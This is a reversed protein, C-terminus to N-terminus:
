DVPVLSCTCNPHAPPTPVDDYDIKMQNGEIGTLVDGVKLFSGGITKARGSLALCFECAGPNVFWAVKTYGNHKYALEAASNAAKLSETRAIREARYGKADSYVVEVRKKLKNLSEGTKQGENLTRELEKITDQNFVGSIQKIHNEVAGRTEPPITLLEGTLFHATDASQAEMLEIIIPALVAAMEESDDRVNFLWEEYAKSSVNIKSIISDEQTNLFSSLSTKFKKTYIEATTVLKSRFFEQDDNLKKTEESKQIPLKKVIKINKKTTQPAQNSKVGLQITPSKAQLEDGGTLPLLGERERVENVTMWVNVGKEYIKLDHEKDKPVPSLHEISAPQNIELSLHEYIRDLRRMMPELKEKSYIYYLAELNARGFGNDDTMGLLPKPVELMMLVDDVAMTKTIKQDIDKLTSGVAQFKAEGGRIFGTKGANEPGEYNERWVQTFQNFAARDMDPLSVIGSPSGSNRIYNLTFNSVNIETEVYVAAKELVSMGRWENFPNPRKDHYVEEPTFPVQQGNNKHLVYGVFEGSNFKLEMRSPDLLYVEKVKKTKEGRAKYWFTEGYIEFLMGYLHIFDSASGITPNPNNYLSLLPHNIYADGNARKVIPEYVSLSLGTKDIAKYTVGTVQRQPQFSPAKQYNRTVTGLAETRGFLSKLKNLKIM